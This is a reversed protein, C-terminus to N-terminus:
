PRPLRLIFALCADRTNLSQILSSGTRVAAGPRQRPAAPTVCAEGHRCCTPSRPPSAPALTLRALPHPPMALCSASTPIFESRKGVLAWRARGRGREAGGGGRCRPFGGSRQRSEPVANLRSALVDDAPPGQEWPFALVGDVM